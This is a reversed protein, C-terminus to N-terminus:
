PQKVMRLSKWGLYCIVGLLTGFASEFGAAFYFKFTACGLVITSAISGGLVQALTGEVISRGTPIDSPKQEDNM